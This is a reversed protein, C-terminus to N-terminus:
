TLLYHEQIKNKEMRLQSLSTQEEQSLIGFSSSSLLSNIDEDLRQSESEMLSGKEKIWDKVEM